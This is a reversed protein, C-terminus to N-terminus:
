ACIGRFVAGIVSGIGRAIAAIVRSIAVFVAGIGRAIASVVFKFAIGRFIQVRPQLRCLFAM